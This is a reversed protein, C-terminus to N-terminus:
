LLHARRLLAGEGLEDFGRDWDNEVWGAVDQRPGVFYDDPNHEELLVEALKDRRGSGVEGVVYDIPNARTPNEAADKVESSDKFLRPRLQESRYRAVATRVDFRGYGIAQLSAVVMQRATELSGGSRTFDDVILVHVTRQLQGSLLGRAWRVWGGVVAGQLMERLVPGSADAAAAGTGLEPAGARGTAGVGVTPKVFRPRLPVLAPPPTRWGAGEHLVAAVRAAIQVGATPLGVVVEPWFGSRKVVEALVEARLDISTDTAPHGDVARPWTRAEREGTKDIEQMTAKVDEAWRVVRLWAPQLEHACRARLEPVRDVADPAICQRYISECVMRAETIQRLNSVDRGARKKRNRRNLRQEPKMRRAVMGDTFTSLVIDM